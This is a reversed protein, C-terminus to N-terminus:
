ISKEANEQLKRTIRARLNELENEPSDLITFDHDAAPPDAGSAGKVHTSNFVNDQRNSQIEHQRGRSATRGPRGADFPFTQGRAFCCNRRRTVHFTQKRTFSNGAGQPLTGTESSPTVTGSSVGPGQSPKEEELLNDANDHLRDHIPPAPEGASTAPVVGSSSALYEVGPLLVGDEQSAKGPMNSYDGLARLLIEYSCLGNDAPHQNLPLSTNISFQLHPNGKKFINVASNMAKVSFLNHVLGPVIMAFIRVPVRQGAQDIIHGWISGTAMALGEMNGATDIIKPERLKHLDKTSDRLRPIM